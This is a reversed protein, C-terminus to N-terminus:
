KEELIIWDNAEVDYLDFVWEENVLKDKDGLEIKEFEFYPVFKYVIERKCDATSRLPTGLIFYCGGICLSSRCVKKGERMASIAESINM